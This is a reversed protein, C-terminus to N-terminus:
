DYLKFIRRMVQKSSFKKLKNKIFNIDRKKFFKEKKFLIKIQKLDQNLNQGNILYGSYNRVICESTGGVNTTIVPTGVSQAELLVNPTGEYKSTLFCVDMKKMEYIIDKKIGMFSFNNQLSLNKIKENLSKKLYGEGYLKFYYNKSERLLLNSIEIFYNINKEPSLRAVMGIIIKNKNRIKNIKMKNNFDFINYTVKTTKNKLNLWKDYDQAGKQSNNVLLINKNQLLFKYIDKFYYKHWIFNFPPVNRTSLIIKKVGISLSCIGNIVNPFELFSHVVYPKFEKLIEYFKFFLIKEYNNFLALFKQKSFSPFKKKYILNIQHEIEKNNFNSLNITKVKIRNPIQSRFFNLKKLWDKEYLVLNVILVDYNKRVLHNALRLLQRESGGPKIQDTLLLIKKKNKKNIISKQIKIHKLKSNIYNKFIFNLNEYILSRLLLFKPYKYLFFRIKSRFYKITM